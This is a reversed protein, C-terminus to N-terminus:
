KLYPFLHDFLALDGGATRGVVYGTLRFVAKLEVRELPRGEREPELMVEVHARPSLTLDHVLREAGYYAFIQAEGAAFRGLNGLLMSFREAFPHGLFLYSELNPPLISVKTALRDPVGGRSAIV